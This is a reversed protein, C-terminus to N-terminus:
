YFECRHIWGTDPSREKLQFLTLRSGPYVRDPILESLPYLVFNRETLRPHPVTLDPMTFRFDEFLLLDIDLTRSGWRETRERGCEREVQQLVRLLDLPWLHTNLRAVLNYYPSQEEVGWPASEYMGSVEPLYGARESLLELGRQLYAQRDGLNSGLGLFASHM